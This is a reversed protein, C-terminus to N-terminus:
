WIIGEVLHLLLTTKTKLEYKFFIVNGIYAIYVYM